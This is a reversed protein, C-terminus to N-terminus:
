RGRTGFRGGPCYPRVKGGIVPRAAEACQLLEKMPPQSLKLLRTMSTGKQGQKFMHIIQEPNLFYVLFISGLTKSQKLPPSEVGSCKM